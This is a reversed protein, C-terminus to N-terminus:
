LVFTKVTSYAYKTRINCTVYLDSDKLEVSSVSVSEFLDDQLFTQQIDKLLEAYNYSGATKGQIINKGFTPFEPIDGRNLKLLTDIKQEVNDEYRKIDLDNDKITIKKNIDKGYVHNGAPAEIISEVVLDSQNNVMAKMSSLKDIEWDDEQFDNDLLLTTETVGLSDIEDALDQPTKMGGIDAKVQVYPQYGRVSEVVRNYKPLKSIRELTDNLNQCYQQLEWFGCNSLKSSYNKFTQVLNRSRTLLSNFNGMVETSVSETRGAYYDSLFSFDDQMFDRYDEFYKSLKFKTVNEFEIVIDSFM